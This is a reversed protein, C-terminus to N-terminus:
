FEIETGLEGVSVNAGQKALAAQLYQGSEPEGHILWTKAKSGKMRNYYDILESHDAHGSFSDVIEVAANVRFTDGLIKVEKQGDRIRRGLTREACYGVFLITNKSDEINNRLHHMIRGAECMGSASIIIAVGELENLAKSGKVSRILTLDEFGFPNQKEFLAAYVDKNFSDPHLRYIETASVALPSDVYVPIPPLEKSLFMENLVYLLKQTREVAFAPILIKGGRKVAEKIVGSFHTDFGPPAEHERGGYTSEMLIFDVGEVAVPDRLVESDGRGVDGSFLFRKKRGDAQDTIDLIVQASGLIHGADVFTLEVGPSINLPRDYGLTVFQRLCKEADQETYLPEVPDLNKRKRHKNLWEIDHEQIRASDRLMIQCLDRTAHTSFITGTFGKKCLNPLNGSHDIHAHSLVTIDVTSPDYHPFCCNIEYADKRSGQYLGCDLLIKKGNVELLHQSGTTTGAAGCFKLKM